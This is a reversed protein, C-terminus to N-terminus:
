VRYTENQESEQEEMPPAEKEEGAKERWRNRRGLWYLGVLVLLIGTLLVYLWLTVKWFPMRGVWFPPLDRHFGDPDAAYYLAWYPWLYALQDTLTTTRPSSLGPRFLFPMQALPLLLFLLGVTLTTGLAGWRHPIFLSFTLGLTGYFAVVSLGIMLLRGLHPAATCLAEWDTLVGKGSASVTRLVEGDAALFSLVVLPVMLGALLLLYPVATGLRPQFLARLSRGVLAALRLPLFSPALGLARQGSDGSGPRWGWKRSNGTAVVAALLVLLTLAGGAALAAYNTLIQVKNATIGAPAPTIGPLWDVNGCFLAALTLFALLTLLRLGVGQYRRRHEEFHVMACKLLLLILLANLLLTPYALPVVWGYWNVPEAAYFPFAFVNLGGLIFVGHHTYSLDFNVAALLLTLFLYLCVCGYTLATAVTTHRVLASWTLGLAAFLIATELLVAYTTLVELPSVGGLLFCISILPLSTTLLLLIFLTASGLKGVVVSRASLPTALLLDLTLQERELTIAGAAFAPALLSVLAAQAMCLYQFLERGVRWSTAAYYQSYRQSQLWSFYTLLLVITLVGLYGVLIWYARNGRMRSRVEKMLVPNSVVEWRAM